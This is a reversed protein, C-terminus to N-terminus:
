DDAYRRMECVLADVDDVCHCAEGLWCACWWHYGKGDRETRLDTDLLYGGCKPCIESTAHSTRM